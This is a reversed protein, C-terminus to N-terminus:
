GEFFPLDLRSEGTFDVSYNAPLPLFASPDNGGVKLVLSDGPSVDVKVWDFRLTLNGQEVDAPSLAAHAARTLLQSKGFSDVHYLAAVVQYPAPTAADALHLHLVPAGLLVESATFKPTDFFSATPDQRFQEPVPNTPQGVQDWLGSPEQFPNGALQQSVTFTVNSPEEALTSDIARLYSAQWAPQPFAPYDLFGGGRADVTSLAPWGDVGTDKGVVFYEVWDLARAWCTPDDEGHGGQFVVARTFGAATSWAEDAQPFLTEQMGQCVLLPKDVAALRGLASRADMEAHVSELGQRSAAKQLWTAIMPDLQAKSGAAGVALLEGAWEAKPVNGPILGNYLDVWGYMPVATTVRPDSAYAELATGAGYSQGVLAVRGSTPYHSAVFDIVADLDALEAPGAVTAMGGSQGFGRADYAVAVVGEQAFQQLRNVTHGAAGTPDPPVPAGSGGAPGEFQEKFFGWTHLMVVMGWKPPSGDPLTDGSVPSYVTAAIDTGDFSPITYATRDTGTVRITSPDYGVDAPRVPASDKAGGKFADLCGSAGAVLVLAAVPLAWRM